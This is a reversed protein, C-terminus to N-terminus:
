NRAYRYHEPYHPSGSCADDAEDQRAQEHPIGEVFVADKRRFSVLQQRIEESVSQASSKHSSFQYTTVSTIVLTLVVIGIVTGPKMDDMVSPNHTPIVYHYINFIGRCQWRM